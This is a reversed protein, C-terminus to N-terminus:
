VTHEAEEELRGAEAMVASLLLISFGAFVLLLHPGLAGALAPHLTKALIAPM